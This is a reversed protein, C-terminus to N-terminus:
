RRVETPEHGVHVTASQASVTVVFVTKTVRSILNVIVTRGIDGGDDRCDSTMMM